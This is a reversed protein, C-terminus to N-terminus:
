EERPMSNLKLEINMLETEIKERDAALKKVIEDTKKKNEELFARAEDKSKEVVYGFGVYTFVKDTNSAKVEIYTGAELNLLMNSGKVREVNEIFEINRSMMASLSVYSNINAALAEYEQGYVGQMYKLQELSMEQDAM